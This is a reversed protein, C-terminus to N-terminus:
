GYNRAEGSVAHRAEDREDKKKEQSIDGDREHALQLM